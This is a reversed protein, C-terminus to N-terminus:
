SFVDAQGGGKPDPGYKNAGPTGPFAFWIIQGLSILGGILPVAGLVAFLLVLWGTQNLDHFRRVALSIQGIAHGLLFVFLATAGVIGIPNLEETTWDMGLGFVLAALVILVIVYFLTFWWYESRRSRGQFDFYRRYFTAIADTFSM